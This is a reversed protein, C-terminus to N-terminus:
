EKKASEGEASEGGGAGAPDNKDDSAADKEVAETEDATTEQRGTSERIDIRWGTLRAALRANQGGKGIALSYQDPSVEIRARRESEDLSVELVRAPSLAREIFAATEPSWEIIDIKEGGLENMVATVRVGRQGVCAGVPDIHEDNSAVAIKSRSGPERAVAKVLVVGNAIEPVEIELLKALFRPHSRSLRLTIDRPTEEIDYLYARVREGQRYYEGPIQEERPLLATTRGLDVFINGREIRQVVGSVIEGRKKEYEDSAAIREAERIRQIIVQKATQAAIRGYDDRSELPFVIEDGVKADRKIRQADSLLLHQEENFRVKQEELPTETGDPVAEGGGGERPAEKAPVEKPTEEIEEGEEPMRVQEPDVVTKVQTFETKGTGPDFLAKIVQGRKGYDKKYAAALADEIAEKIKEKPIGRENQLQDLAANLAKLDMM